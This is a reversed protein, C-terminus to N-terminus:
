FIPSTNIAQAVFGSWQKPVKKFAALANKEDAFEAFVCSGSGSMRPQHLYNDFSKLYNLAELIEGELEIAAKLCDNRPNNLASFDAIKGIHQSMTLAKHSFIRKTSVSKKICIVLFFHKPLEIPTLIEGVGEAWASVGNIFVPVDAGLSLGIEMLKQKSYNIKWLQNLAILTTAANSSGGGLGGGIPIKKLVSIEAGLNIGASKQLIKAAKLILDQEAPVGFNNSIRSIKGDTKSTFSLNDSFDLLQFITQLNHFGDARKSNIHLFLNIKAPSQWIKAM